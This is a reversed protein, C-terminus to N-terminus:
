SEPRTASSWLWIAEGFLFEGLHFTKDGCGEKGFVGFCLYGVITVYEDELLGTDLFLVM